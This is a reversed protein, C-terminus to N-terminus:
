ASAPDSEGTSVGISVGPLLRTRCYRIRHVREIDGPLPAPQPTRATIGAADTRDITLQGGSKEIEVILLIVSLEHLLDLVGVGVVGARGKRPREHAEAGPRADLEAPQVVGQAARDADDDGFLVITEDVDSQFPHLRCVERAGCGHEHHQRVSGQSPRVLAGVRMASLKEGFNRTERVVDRWRRRDHEVEGLRDVDLRLHDLHLRDLEVMLGSRRVRMMLPRERVNCCVLRHRLVGVEGLRWDVRVTLDDRRRRWGLVM